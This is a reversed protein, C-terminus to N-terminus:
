WDLERKGKSSTYIPVSCLRLCCWLSHIYIAIYIYGMIYCIVRSNRRDIFRVDYIWIICTVSYYYIGTSIYCIGAIFNSCIERGYIQFVKDLNYKITYLFKGIEVAV